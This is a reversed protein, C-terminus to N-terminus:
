SELSGIVDDLRDLQARVKTRLVEHRQQAHSHPGKPQAVAQEGHHVCEDGHADCLMLLLAAQVVALVALFHTSKFAWTFVFFPPGM